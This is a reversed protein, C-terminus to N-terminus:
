TSSSCRRGLRRGVQWSCAGLPLLLLLQVLALLLLACDLLLAYALIVRGQGLVLLLTRAHTLPAHPAVHLCFACHLVGRWFARPLLLLLLLLWRRRCRLLLLFLLQRLFLLLLLRHDLWLCLMISLLLLLLPALKPV